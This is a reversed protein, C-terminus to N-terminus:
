FGVFCGNKVLEKADETNIENQTASPFACQCPIAWPRQGELYQTGKFKEAYESIRGRRVNKLELVYALKEDDIGDADYITGCSDSLTVAKGGLHNIKEVTYQAVNGSGSSPASKTKLPTAARPWCRRPLTSRAM